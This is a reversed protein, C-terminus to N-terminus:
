SLKERLKMEELAASIKNRQMEVINRASSGVPLANAVEQYHELAHEEGRVVEELIAEDDGQTSLTEKIAIWTRHLGAGVSSGKEVEGGLKSIQDKIEHGFDYRQQAYNTFQTKLEAHDAREAVQKYGAEADYNATILENLKNVQDQNNM